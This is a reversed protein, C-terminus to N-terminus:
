VIGRRDGTRPDNEGNWRRGPHDDRPRTLWACATRGGEPWRQVMGAFLGPKPDGLPRFRGRGERAFAITKSELAVMEKTTAMPRGDFTSRILPRHKMEQAVGEVTVAGLGRKLAETVLKREPLVADRVYSHAIAHDVARAEGHEPRVYRTTRSYVDDLLRREEPSMRSDWAQRLQGISLESDKKERTEAGLEAKRDPNTIGKEEAVKEILETRRSFRKLIDAPIGAIEFDDRKRDVGFGLDQLKNALRVRFAAQFYPADRKLDGM